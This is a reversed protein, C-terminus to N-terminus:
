VDPALGMKVTYSATANSENNGSSIDIFKLVIKYEKSSGPPLTDKYINVNTHSGYPLPTETVLTTGGLTSLFYTLENDVFSNEISEFKIYFSATLTGTNEVRFSKTVTSGMAMEQNIYACDSNRSNACDTYTLVMTGASEKISQNNANNPEVSFYAYSISSIYAVIFGILLITIVKYHKTIVFEPEKNNM